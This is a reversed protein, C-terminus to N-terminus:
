MGDDGVFAIAVFVKRRGNIRAKNESESKKGRVIEM